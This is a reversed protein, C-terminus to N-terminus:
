TVPAYPIPGKNLIHSRLTWVRKLLNKSFTDFFPGHDSSEIPSGLMICMKTDMDGAIFLHWFAELRNDYLDSM